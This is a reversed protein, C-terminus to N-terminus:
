KREMIIKYTRVTRQVHDIDDIFEAAKEMKDSLNQKSTQVADSLFILIVSGM